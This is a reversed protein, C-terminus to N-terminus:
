GYRPRLSSSPSLTVDPPLFAARPDHREPRVLLREGAAARAPVAVVALGAPSVTALDKHSHVAVDVQGTLLALEIEATFFSKGEVQQLPVDEIVDGRTKLVILEVELGPERRLREAVHRAQWLALDSGRTGIRLKM